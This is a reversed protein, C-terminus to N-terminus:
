KDGALVAQYDILVQENSKLYNLRTTIKGWQESTLGLRTRIQAPSWGQGSFFAQAKKLKGLAIFPDTEDMAKRVYQRAVQAKTAEGSDKITGGEREAKTADNEQAVALVESEFEARKALVEEDSKLGSCPGRTAVRDSFTYEFRARLGARHKTTTHTRSIIPM